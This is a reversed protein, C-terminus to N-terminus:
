SDVPFFVNCVLQLVLLQGSEPKGRDLDRCVGEVGVGLRRLDADEVEFFARRVEDGFVGGGAFRDPNGLLLNGIDLAEIV